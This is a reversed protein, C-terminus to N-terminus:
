FGIIKIKIQLIGEGKAGKGLNKWDKKYRELEQMTDKRHLM